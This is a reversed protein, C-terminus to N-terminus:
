ENGPFNKRMVREATDRLDKVGLGDHAKLLIHLTHTAFEYDPQFRHSFCVAVISRGLMNAFRLMRSIQPYHAPADRRRPGHISRHARHATL